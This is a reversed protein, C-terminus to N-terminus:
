GYVVEGFVARQILADADIADTANTPGMFRHTTLTVQDTPELTPPRRCFPHGKTTYDLRNKPPPDQTSTTM